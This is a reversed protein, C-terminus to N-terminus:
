CIGDYYDKCAGEATAMGYGSLVQLAPPMFQVIIDVCAMQQEEDLGIEANMCFAEGSLAEIIANVGEMSGYASAVAQVDAICTDCDWQRFISYVVILIPVTLTPKM